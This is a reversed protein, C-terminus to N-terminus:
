ARQDDWAIWDLGIWGPERMTLAMVVVIDIDIDIDIDIIFCHHHVKHM